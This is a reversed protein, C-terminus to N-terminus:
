TVKKRIMKIVAQIDSVRVVDYSIWGHEDDEYIFDQPLEKLVKILANAFKIKEYAWVSKEFPTFIEDIIKQM